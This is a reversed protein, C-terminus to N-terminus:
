LRAGNRCCNWLDKLNRTGPLDPSGNNRQVAQFILLLL